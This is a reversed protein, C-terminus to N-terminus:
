RPPAASGRNVGLMGGLGMEAMAEEDLVEIALKREAALAIAREALDTPTSTTAAAHQGPGAGPQGGRRRGPGEGRGDAVAARHASGTTLVVRELM